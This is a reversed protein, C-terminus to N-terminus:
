GVHHAVVWSLAGIIAGIATIALGIATIVLMFRSIATNQKALNLNQENLKINVHDNHADLADKVETQQQVLVKKQEDDRGKSYSIFDRVEGQFTRFNAVGKVLAKHESTLEARWRIWEAEDIPM